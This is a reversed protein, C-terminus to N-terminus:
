DSGARRSIAYKDKRAHRESRRLRDGKLGEKWPFLGISVHREGSLNTRTQHGAQKAREEGPMAGVGGGGGGGVETIFAVESFREKASQVRLPTQTRTSV